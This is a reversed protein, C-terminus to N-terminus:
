LQDYSLSGYLLEFDNKDEIVSFDFSCKGAVENGFVARLEEETTDTDEVTDHM